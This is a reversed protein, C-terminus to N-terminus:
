ASGKQVSLTIGALVALIVTMGSAATTAGDINGSGGVIGHFKIASDGMATCNDKAFTFSGGSTGTCDKTSFGYEYILSADTITMKTSSYKWACTSTDSWDTCDRWFSDYNCGNTMAEEKNLEKATTCTADSYESMQITTGPHTVACEIKVSKEFDATNDHNTCALTMTDNRDGCKDYPLTAATTCAADTYYEKYVHTSNCVYKRYGDFKYDDGCEFDTDSCEKQYETMEATGDCNTGKYHTGKLFTAANSPRLALAM